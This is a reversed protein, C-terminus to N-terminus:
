RYPIFRILDSFSRAAQLLIRSDIGFRDQPLQILQQLIVTRAPVGFVMMIAGYGSQKRGIPPIELPLGALGAARRSRPRTASSAVLFARIRCHVARSQSRTKAFAETGLPVIGAGLSGVPRFARGAAVFLNGHAGGEFGEFAPSEAIALQAVDAHFSAAGPKYRNWWQHQFSLSERTVEEM